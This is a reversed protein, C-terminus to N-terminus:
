LWHNIDMVSLARISGLLAPTRSFINRDVRLQQMFLNDSDLDADNKKLALNRRLSFGAAVM